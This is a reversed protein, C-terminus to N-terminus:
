MIVMMEDINDKLKFLGDLTDNKDDMQINNDFENLWAHKIILKVM